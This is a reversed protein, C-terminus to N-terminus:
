LCIRFRRQIYLVIFIKTFIYTVILLYIENVTFSFCNLLTPALM